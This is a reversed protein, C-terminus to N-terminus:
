PRAEPGKISATWQALFPREEYGHAQERGENRNLCEELLPEQFWGEFLSIASLCTCWYGRLPFRFYSLVNDWPDPDCYGHSTPRAPHSSCSLSSCALFWGTLSGSLVAAAHHVGSDGVYPQLPCYKDKLEKGGVAWPKSQLSDKRVTSWTTCMCSFLSNGLPKPGFALFLCLLQPGTQGSVIPNESGHSAYLRAWFICPILYGSFDNVINIRINKFIHVSLQMLPTVLKWSLLCVQIPNLTTVFIYLLLLRFTCKIICMIGVTRCSLWAYTASRM